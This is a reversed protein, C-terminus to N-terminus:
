YVINNTSDKIYQMTMYYTKGDIVKNIYEGTIYEGEYFTEARVIGVFLFLSILCFVVKFSRREM